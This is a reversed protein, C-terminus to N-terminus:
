DDLERVWADYYAQSAQRHAREEESTLEGPSEPPDIADIIFRYALERQDGAALEDKFFFGFRGYARWSLEEVPNAPANLQTARYWNDGRPFLYTVWKFEDSILRGGHDELGTPEWLYVTESQRDGVDYHARFHIGAHQLDGDLQLDREAILHSHFDVITRQDGPRRVTQRRRETILLDGGGADQEKSRWLMVASVTAADGETSVAYGALDISGGDGMHWLDDVGLESRIQNWGIFIGRHHPFQGLTQGDPGLGPNTILQGDAGYVSLFTKMQGEGYILSAVLQDSYALDLREGPAEPNDRPAVQWDQALAPSPSLAAVALFALALALIPTPAPTALMTFRRFSNM